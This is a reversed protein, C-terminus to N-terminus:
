PHPAKREAKPKTKRLYLYEVLDRIERPSLKDVLDEPMSSKGAKRDEIEAIPIETRIGEADILVLQEDSESKVLGTLTLGDTTLVITQNFGEAVTKNPDVISELLYDRTKDIAVGSLDPGVEGGTGDINHCRVCSVETKYFFIERGREANGGFRSDTYRATKDAAASEIATRYQKLAEAMEPENRREAAMVYDLRLENPLENREAQQLAAALRGASAPDQMQGLLAIIEQKGKVSRSDNKLYADILQIDNPKTELHLDILKVSLQDPQSDINALLERYTKDFLKADSQKLNQLAFIRSAENQSDDLVLAQLPGPAYKVGLQNGAELTAALLEEEKHLVSQIRNLAAVAPEASRPEIPRWDGLVYDRPNPKAWQGLLQIAELRLPQPADPNVVFEAIRAASAADGLHVNANLARRLYPPDDSRGLTLALQPLAEKMPEDHIARAAELAIRPDPDNLMQALTAALFQRPKKEFYKRPTRKVQPIMRRLAACFALRVPAPAQQGLQGFIAPPFPEIPKSIRGPWSIRPRWHNWIIENMAMIGAHRLAPDVNNNAVLLESVHKLDEPKGRIGLALTAFYRVRSNPDQMLSLVSEKNPMWGWDLQVPLKMAQARVEPDPDRCLQEIIALVRDRTPDGNPDSSGFSQELIQGIGWLAHIRALTPGPQSATKILAQAPKSGKDFFGNEPQRTFGDHIARNALEFQAEYRVRRDAHGLLDALRQETKKAVGHELLQQVELAVPLNTARKDEFTYVRGKKEGVWGFVWDALYLRGDPGFEIDTALTNWITQEMDDVQFFAGEPKVRFTRIGSSAANGRFDALFFRDKFHESLGTGPYFALGSPGDSINAVPPVIYAPTSDPDYPHWIKERNFPGRDPLYQYYMRWGSDSGPLVAVWRAKDGSDSNNDCTFLNGYDDFALEQPNRLGTAVVELRSNFNKGDAPDTPPWNPNSTLADRRYWDYETVVEEYMKYRFVAGSAPDYASDQEINYGRDGISFYLWGDPGITLGHLDHGRFATRVGFGSELSEREDAQGDGNTDRLRWLHPICTFYVNGKYALVGAGTGDEIQNFHDAFVTVQDASGDSNSDVLLRIRDDHSTYSQDADPIYKRIYDIRDQVSKAALDDNLWNSHSRNDEVGEEQRFSECVFVRGRHDVHLAVPNAVDPEAAFLRAEWKEPFQFSEIALQGENSAPAIKPPEPEQATLFGPLISVTCTVFLIPLTTRLM